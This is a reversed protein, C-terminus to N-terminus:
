TAACLTVDCCCWFCTTMHETLRNTIIWLPHDTHIKSNFLQMSVQLQCFMALLQWNKTSDSSWSMKMLKGRFIRSFFITSNTKLCISTKNAILSQTISTWNRIHKTYNMSYDSITNVTCLLYGRSYYMASRNFVNHTSHWVCVTSNHQTTNVATSCLHHHKVPM